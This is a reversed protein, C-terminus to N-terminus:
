DSDSATASGRDYVPSAAAHAPCLNVLPDGCKYCVIWKSSCAPDECLWGNDEDEPLFTGCAACRTSFRQAGAPAPVAFRWEIRPVSTPAPAPLKWDPLPAGNHALAVIGPDPGPVGSFAVLAESLQFLRFVNSAGYYESMRTTQRKWWGMVDLLDPSAGSERLVTDAGVRVGNARVVRRSGDPMPPARARLSACMSSSDTDFLRGSGGSAEWRPLLIETLVPHRAATIHPSRIFESPRARDGLKTKTRSVWRLLWGECFRTLHFGRLQQAYGPRLVFFAQVVMCAIAERDRGAALPLWSLLASPFVPMSVAHEHRDSGGRARVYRQARPGFFPPVARGSRLFAAAAASVEGKVTPVTVASWGLCPRETRADMYRIVLAELTDPEAPVQSLGCHAVLALLRRLTAVARPTAAVPEHVFDPPLVTAVSASQLPLELGTEHSLVAAIYGHLGTASSAPRRPAPSRTPSGIGLPVLRRVVPAVPRPSPDSSRSRKRGPGPHKEVDPCIKLHQRLWWEAFDRQAVVHPEPFWTGDRFSLPPQDAPRPGPFVPQNPYARTPGPYGVDPYISKYLEGDPAEWVDSLPHPRSLPFRPGDSQQMGTTRCRPRKNSPPSRHMWMPTAASPHRSVLHYSTYGSLRRMWKPHWFAAELPGFDPRAGPPRPPCVSVAVHLCFFASLHPDQDLLPVQPSSRRRISAPLLGYVAYCYPRLLERTDPTDRLVLVGHWGHCVALRLLFDSLASAPPMAFFSRMSFDFELAEGICGDTISDLQARATRLFGARESPADFASCYIRAAALAPSGFLDVDWMPGLGELHILAPVTLCFGSRIVPSALADVLRAEDEGRCQWRFRTPFGELYWRALQVAAPAACGSAVRGRLGQTAANNANDTVIVAFSIAPSVDPQAFAHRLAGVAVLLERDTSSSADPFSSGEFLVSARPPSSWPHQGIRSLIAAGAGANADCVVTVGSPTASWGRPPFFPRLPEDALVPLFRRWFVVLSSFAATVPAPGLVFPELVVRFPGFAPAFASFWSVYGLFVQLFRRERRNLPRPSELLGPLPRLDGPASLSSLVRSLAGGGLSLHAPLPVTDAFIDPVDGEPFWLPLADVLCLARLLHHRRFAVGGAFRVAGDPAQHLPFHLFSLHLGLFVPTPDPAGFFKSASVFWGHKHAVMAAIAAAQATLDPSPAAVAIDDMYAVVAAWPCLKQTERLAPLLRQVFARPAQKLGFPMRRYHFVVPSGTFRFGMYPWMSPHLHVSKYAAKLDLRCGFRNQGSRFLDFVKGYSVPWDDSKENFDAPHYCVRGKKSEPFLRNLHRVLGTDDIAVVDALLESVVERLLAPLPASDTAVSPALDPPIPVALPPARVEPRCAFNEAALIEYTRSCVEVTDSSMSGLAAEPPDGSSTRWFDQPHQHVKWFGRFAGYVHLVCDVDPVDRPLHDPSWVPAQVCTSCFWSFRHSPDTLPAPHALFEQPCREPVLMACGLCPAGWADVPPVFPPPTPFGVELATPLVLRPDPSAAVLAAVSESWASQAGDEVDPVDSPPLGAPIPLSGSSGPSPCPGASSWHIDPPSGRVASYASQLRWTHSGHGWERSPPQGAPHPSPSASWTVSGVLAGVSDTPAPLSGPASSAAGAVDSPVAAEPAPAEGASDSPPVPGSVSPGLSGPPSAGFDAAVRASTDPSVARPPVESLDGVAGASSPM